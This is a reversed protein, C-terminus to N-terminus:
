RETQAYGWPWLSQELAQWPLDEIRQNVKM